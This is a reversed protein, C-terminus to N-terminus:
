PACGPSASRASAGRAQTALTTSNRAHSVAFAQDASRGGQLIRALAHAELDLVEAVRRRREHHAMGAADM